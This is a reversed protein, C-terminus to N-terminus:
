LGYKREIKYYKDFIINIEKNSLDPWLTKTFFLESYKLQLLLFNSLRSYGGTRILLDPDPINLYLYKKILKENIIIKKKSSINVINNILYILEDTFGYNFAINLNLRSNKITDEEIKSIKNLIKLPLNKKEGFIKIKVKKNNSFSEIINSFEDNIIDFIINVSSRKINETSLAYLTLYKINKKICIDIVQNIKKLGKKYGDKKPLSNKKSWRANGDMIMALHNINNNILM